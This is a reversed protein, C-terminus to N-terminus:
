IGETIFKILYWGLGAITAGAIGLVLYGVVKDMYKEFNKYPKEKVSKVDDAVTKIEGALYETTKHLEGRLAGIDNKIDADEIRLVRVNVDSVVKITEKVDISLSNVSNVFHDISHTLLIISDIQKDMNVVDERLNQFAVNGSALSVAHDDLKKEALEMRKDIREFHEVCSRNPQHTEPM